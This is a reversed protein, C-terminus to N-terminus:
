WYKIDLTDRPRFNQSKWLDLISTPPLIATWPSKPSFWKIWTGSERLILLDHWPFYLRKIHTDASDLHGQLRLEDLNMDEIASFIDAWEGDLLHIDQLRLTKVIGTHRQLFSILHKAPTQLGDFDVVRVNPWIAQSCVERLDVRVANYGYHFGNDFFRAFSLRLNELKVAADLLAVLPGRELDEIRALTASIPYEYLPERYLLAHIDMSLHKVHAFLGQIRTLSTRHRTLGNFFQWSVWNIDLRMIPRGIEAAAMLVDLLQRSARPGRENFVPETWSDRFYKNSAHLGHRSIWEPCNSLLLTTVNPLHRLDSKLIARRKRSNRSIAKQWAHVKLYSEWASSLERTSAGLLPRYISGHPSRANKKWENEDEGYDPLLDIEYEFVKISECLSPEKLIESLRKRSGESPVFSFTRILRNAGIVLFRKATLRLAALDESWLHHCIELLIENPTQEFPSDPRPALM